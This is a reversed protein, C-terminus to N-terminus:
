LNREGSDGTFRSISKRGTRKNGHKKDGSPLWNKMFRGWNRKRARASHEYRKLWAEMKKIEERVFQISLNLEQSILDIETANQQCWRRFQELPTGVQDKKPLCYSM